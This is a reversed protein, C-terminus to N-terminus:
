CPVIPIPRRLVPTQRPVPTQWSSPRRRRHQQHLGQRPCRRPQPQPRRHKRRRLRLRRLELRPVIRCTTARAGEKKTCHQWPEPGESGLTDVSAVFIRHSEGPKGVFQHALKQKEFLKQLDKIQSNQVLRGLCWPQQRHSSSNHGHAGSAVVRCGSHPSCGRSLM